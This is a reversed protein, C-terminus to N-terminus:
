FLSNVLAIFFGIHSRLHVLDFFFFHAGSSYTYLLKGASSLLFRVAIRGENSLFLFRNPIFLSFYFFFTLTSM